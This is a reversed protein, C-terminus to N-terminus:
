RENLDICLPYNLAVVAFDGRFLNVRDFRIMKSEILPPSLGSLYLLVM